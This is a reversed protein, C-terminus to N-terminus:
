PGNAVSWGRRWRRVIDAESRVRIAADGLFTAFPWSLVDLGLGNPVLPSLLLNVLRFTGRSGARARGRSSGV